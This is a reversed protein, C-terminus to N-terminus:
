RISPPSELTNTSASSMASLERGLTELLTNVAAIGRRVDPNRFQKLLRWLGIPESPETMTKMAQPIARTWISLAEPEVTGLLKVLQIFNRLGAIAEPSKGAEVAAELLKDSAGLAGRLVDFVGRDHLGQLVDYAALLAEAHEAPAAALRATLETRADTLPLELPIPQAM